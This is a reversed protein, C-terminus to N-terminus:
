GWGIIKLYTFETQWMQNIATTKDQFESATKMVIFVPSIILYHAKLLHYVSSESVFYGECNPYPM